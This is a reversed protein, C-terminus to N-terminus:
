RITGKLDFSTIFPQLVKMGTDKNQEICEIIFEVFYLQSSYFKQSAIDDDNEDSQRHINLLISGYIKGLVYFIENWKNKFLPHNFSIQTQKQSQIRDNFDNLLHLYRMKRLENVRLVLEIIFPEHVSKIINLYLQKKIEAAHQMKHLRQLLNLNIDYINKVKNLSISSGSSVTSNSSFLINETFKHVNLSVQYLENIKENTLVHKNKQFEVSNIMDFFTNILYHLEDIKYNDEDGGGGTVISIGSTSKSKKSKNNGLAIEKIKNILITKNADSNTSDAFFTKYEDLEEIAEKHENLFTVPSESIVDGLLKLLEVTKKSNTDTEGTKEDTKKEKETKAKEAELEEKSKILELKPTEKKDKDKDDCSTNLECIKTTASRYLDKASIMNSKNKTTYDIFSITIGALANFLSTVHSKLSPDKKDSMNYKAIVFIIWM